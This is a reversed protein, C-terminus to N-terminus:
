ADGDGGLYIRIVDENKQITLPVDDAIKEGYNLVIIEDSINMVLSMDHEVLLITVGRDRIRSILSAMEATERMNLGAAPEDLLLLAPECALGRALEVLRQQGYSLSTAEHGALGAIGLFDMLELAKERAGRDERRTRPLDLMASLFGSKGHIHRGIMVNELSTMEPFLRIHQFTRAMGKAAIEFPRLGQVPRDHFLITGSDPTLFGSILNFLTTKGAGNPGILAKITDKRVSFSVRSVAQLGGFRKGVDKVELLQM